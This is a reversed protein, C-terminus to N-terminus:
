VKGLNLTEIKPIFKNQNWGTSYIRPYLCASVQMFVFMKIYTGRQLLSYYCSLIFIDIILDICNKMTITNLTPAHMPLKKFTHIYLIGRLLDITNGREKQGEHM